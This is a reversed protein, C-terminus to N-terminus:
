KLVFHCTKSLYRDEDLFYMLFDQTKLILFLPFPLLFSSLCDEQLGIFCYLFLIIGRLQLPVWFKVLIMSLQTM